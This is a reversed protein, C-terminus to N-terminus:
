DKCTFSTHLVHLRGKNGAVVVQYIRNYISLDFEGIEEGVLLGGLVGTTNSHGVVLVDQKNELLHEKFEELHLPNYEQIELGKSSATPKATNKTRNFDTSFIAELPVDGFFACLSKAREAGCSTLAPDSTESQKEAHRVLYITFIDDDSQACVAQLGGIFLLVLSSTKLPKMFIRDFPQNM